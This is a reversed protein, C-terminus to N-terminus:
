GTAANTAADCRNVDHDKLLALFLVECQVERDTNNDPRCRLRYSRYAAASKKKSCPSCSFPTCSSICAQWNLRARSTHLWLLMVRVSTPAMDEMAWGLELCGQEDRISSLAEAPCRLAVEAFGLM